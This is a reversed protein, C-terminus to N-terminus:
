IRETVNNFFGWNGMVVVFSLSCGTVVVFSLSCRTVVVFSLTKKVGGRVEAGCLM